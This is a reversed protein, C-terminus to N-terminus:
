SCFLLWCVLYEMFTSHLNSGPFINTAKPSPHYTIPGLCGTPSIGLTAFITGPLGIHGQLSAVLLHVNLLCQTGTVQRLMNVSLPQKQVHKWFCLLHLGSYRSPNSIICYKGGLPWRYEPQGGLLNYLCCQQGPCPKPFSSSAPPFPAPCLMQFFSMAWPCLMFLNFWKPGLHCILNLYVKIGLRYALHCVWLHCSLELISDFPPPTPPEGITTIIRGSM